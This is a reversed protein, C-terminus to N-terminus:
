PAFILRSTMTIVPSVAPNGNLDNTLFLVLSGKDLDAIGGNASTFRTIHKLRFSKAVLTTPAVVPNSPILRDYLITFRKKFNQNRPSLVTELGPTAQQFLQAATPLAGNPQRDILLVIRTRTASTGTALYVRLRLHRNTLQLGQRTIATDGDGIGNLLLITPTDQQNFQDDTDHFHLERDVFKSLARVARLAKTGRRRRTRRMRRRRKRFPM